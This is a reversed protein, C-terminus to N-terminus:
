KLESLDQTPNRRVVIVTVGTLVLATGALQQATVPASLLVVSAATAVVPEVTATIAARVPELHVIGRAFLLSAIFTAGLSLFLLPLIADAAPLEPRAIPGILLAAATMAVAYVPAPGYRSLYRPALTYHTSYAIGSTLGAIIGVGDVANAASRYSVLVVGAITLALALVQTGSPLRRQTTWEYLGVWAPGTYLLVAAIGVGAREVAVFFAVYMVAIGFAGFAVVGFLDPRAIQGRRYAALWVFPIATLSTRWFATQGATLGARNAWVTVPGILGWLTAAALIALLARSVHRKPTQLSPHENKV